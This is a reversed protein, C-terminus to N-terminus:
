TRCKPNKGYFAHEPLVGQLKRFTETVVATSESCTIVVGLPIAGCPSSTSLVFTPCNFQDLSATSDCFVLEAAQQIYKHARVMLPTCIALVLPQSSHGSEDLNRDWDETIKTFRQVYVKAGKYSNQKNYNEVEAELKEFMGDGNAPGLQHQRWQQFLHAVDSLQPNISRDALAAEVEEEALTIQLKLEHHHRATAATHGGEFYTFYENRTSQAIDRFSLAHASAIPHNHNFSLNIECLHDPFPLRKSIAPRQNYVKITLTSPCQTKKQRTSNPFKIGQKPTFKRYHQCHRVSKYVLISGSTKTGRTVRYTSLSQTQFTELWELAEQETTIKCFLTTTYTQTSAGCFTEPELEQFTSLRYSYNKPLITALVSPICEAYSIDEDKGGKNNDEDEGENEDAHVRGQGGDTRGEEMRETAHETGEGDQGNEVCTTINIVAQMQEHNEQGGERKGEGRGDRIHQQNEGETDGASVCHRMQKARGKQKSGKGQLGQLKLTERKTKRRNTKMENDQKYEETKGLKGQEKSGSGMRGRGELTTTTLQRKCPSVFVDTDRLKELRRKSHSNSINTIEQLHHKSNSPSNDEARLITSTNSPMTDPQFQNTKCEVSHKSCTSTRTASQM